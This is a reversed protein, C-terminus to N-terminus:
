FSKRIKEWIFNRLRSKAFILISSYFFSFSFNAPRKIQLSCTKFNLVNFFSPYTCSYMEYGNCSFRHFFSIFVMNSSIRGTSISVSFLLFSFPPMSNSVSFLFSSFLFLFLMSYVSPLTPYLAFPDTYRTHKFTRLIVRPCDTSLAGWM